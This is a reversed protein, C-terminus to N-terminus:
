WPPPFFLLRYCLQLPLLLDRPWRAVGVLGAVQTAGRRVADLLRRRRTVDLRAPSGAKRRAPGSRAAADAVNEGGGGCRRRKRRRRQAPVRRGARRAMSGRGGGAACVTGEDCAPAERNPRRCREGPRARELERHM